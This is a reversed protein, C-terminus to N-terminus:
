LALAYKSSATPMTLMTVTMDVVDQKLWMMM